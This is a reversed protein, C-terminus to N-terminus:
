QRQALGINQPKWYPTRLSMDPLYKLLKCIWGPLTLAPDQVLTSNVYAEKTRRKM